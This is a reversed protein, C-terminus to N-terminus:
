RFHNRESPNEEAGLPLRAAQVSGAVTPLSLPQPPCGSGGADTVRIVLPQALREGAKAEQENGSVIAMAAVRGSPTLPALRECL